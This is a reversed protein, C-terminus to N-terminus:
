SANSLSSATTSLSHLTSSSVCRSRRRGLTTNAEGESLPDRALRAVIREAADLMKGGLGKSNANQILVRFQQAVLGSMEIKFPGGEDTSM